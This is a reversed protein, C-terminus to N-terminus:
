IYSFIVDCKGCSPPPKLVAVGGTAVDSSVLKLEVKKMMSISDNLTLFINQKSHQWYPRLWFIYKPFWFKLELM